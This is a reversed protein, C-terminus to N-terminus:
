NIIFTEQLDKEDFPIDNGNKDTVYYITNEVSCPYWNSKYLKFKYGTNLVGEFTEKPKVKM